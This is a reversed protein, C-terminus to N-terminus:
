PVVFIYKFSKIDIMFINPQINNIAAGTNINDYTNANITVAPWIVVNIM